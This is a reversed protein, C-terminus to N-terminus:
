WKRKKQFVGKVVREGAMQPRAAAPQSAQQQAQPQQGAGGARLRLGDGFIPRHV